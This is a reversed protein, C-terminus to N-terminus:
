MRSSCAAQIQSIKKLDSMILDIKSPLHTVKKAAVNALLDATENEYISKHAPCHMM